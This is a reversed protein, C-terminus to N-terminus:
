YLMDKNCNETCCCKLILVVVSGYVAAFRRVINTSLVAHESYDWTFASRVGNATKLQPQVHSRSYKWPEFCLVFGVSFDISGLHYLM